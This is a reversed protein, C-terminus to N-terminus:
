DMDFDCAWGLRYQVRLQRLEDLIRKPGSCCEFHVQLGGARQRVTKCRRAVFDPVTRVDCSAEFEDDVNEGFEVFALTVKSLAPLLVNVSGRRQHFLPFVVTTTYGTMEQLHEVRDLGALFQVLEDRWLQIIDKVKFLSLNLTDFGGKDDYVMQLARTLISFIEVVLRQKEENQSGVLAFALDLNVVCEGEDEEAMSGENVKIILGVVSPHVLLSRRKESSKMMERPTKLIGEMHESRRRRERMWDGLTVAANVNNARNCGMMLKCEGPVALKELFRCCEMLAGRLEVYELKKLIVNIPSQSTETSIEPSFVSRLVLTHLLPTQRVISLWSCISMQYTDELDTIQLTTVSSLYPLPSLICLSVMSLSLYELKPAKGIFMRESLKMSDGDSREGGFSSGGQSGILIDSGPTMIRRILSKVALSELAPAEEGMLIDIFRRWEEKTEITLHLKRIRKLDNLVIGLTSVRGGDWNIGPLRTVTTSSSGLGVVDMTCEGSRKLNEMIWKPGQRLDLTRAWLLPEDLAVCRWFHCVQSVKRPSRTDVTIVGRPYGAARLSGSSTPSSSSPSILLLFIASLLEQPLRNVFVKHPNMNHERKALVQPSPPILFAKNLHSTTQSSQPNLKPGYILSPIPSSSLPSVLTTSVPPSVLRPMAAPRNLAVSSTSTVHVDTSTSAAFTPLTSVRIKERPQASIATSPQSMAMREIGRRTAWLSSRLTDTTDTTNVGDKVEDYLSPDSSPPNHRRWSMAEVTMPSPSAPQIDPRTPTPLSLSLVGPLPRIPVPAIAIATSPTSNQGPIAPLPRYSSARGTSPVSSQSDLDEDPNLYAHRPRAMVVPSLRRKM